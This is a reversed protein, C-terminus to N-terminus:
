PLRTSCSNRNILNVSLSCLCCYVFLYVISSLPLYYYIYFMGNYDITGNQDLDAEDLMRDIDFENIDDNPFLKNMVLRLEDKDIKGDNNRDFQKFYYRVEDNKREVINEAEVNRMIDLFEEFVLGSKGNKSYKKFSDNIKDRNPFEIENKLYELKKMTNEVDEITIYGKKSSDFFTFVQKM